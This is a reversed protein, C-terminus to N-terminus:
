TNARIFRLTTPATLNVFYDRGPRCVNLGISLTGVVVPVRGPEVAGVGSDGLCTNTRTYVCLVRTTTCSKLVNSKVVENLTGNAYNGTPKEDGFGAIVLRSAGFATKTTASPLAAARVQGGKLDFSHALTLVALDDGAVQQANQFSLKSGAIYEPMVRVAVVARAQHYTSAAVSEYNSTGAEVGISSAPLLKASNGSTVCHGATLVHRPGIIVGTCAAYPPLGAYPSKEWVVVTWPAATISVTRGGVVALAVGGAAGLLGVALSVVVAVRWVVISGRPPRGRRLSFSRTM